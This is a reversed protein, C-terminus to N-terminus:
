RKEANQATIRKQEPQGSNVASYASFRLPSLASTTVGTDGAEMDALAERVAAVNEVYDTPAPNQARWTDLAEEPSMTAAGNELQDTIFRHFGVLESKLDTSM